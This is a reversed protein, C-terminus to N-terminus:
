QTTVVTMFLFSLYLVLVTLEDALNSSFIQAKLYPFDYVFPTQVLAYSCACLTALTCSLPHTSINLTLFAPEAECLPEYSFLPHVLISFQYQPIYTFPFEYNEITRSVLILIVKNGGLMLRLM